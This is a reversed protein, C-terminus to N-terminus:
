SSKVSDVKRHSVKIVTCEVEWIGIQSVIVVGQLKCWLVEGQPYNRGRFTLGLWNMM